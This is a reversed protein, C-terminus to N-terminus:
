FRTNVLSDGDVDQKGAAYVYQKFTTNNNHNLSQAASVSVASKRLSNHGGDNQLSITLSLRNISHAKPLGTYSSEFLVIQSRMGGIVLSCVKM